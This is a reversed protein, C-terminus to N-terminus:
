ILLLELFDLINITSLTFKIENKKLYQKLKKAKPFYLFDVGTVNVWCGEVMGSKTFSFIM